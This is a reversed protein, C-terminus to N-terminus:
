LNIYILQPPPQQMTIKQEGSSGSAQSVIKSASKVSQSVWQFFQRFSEESNDMRFAHGIAIAKLKTENIGPGCGVTIVNVVKRNQRNLIEQRPTQWDDTPEGDTLIFVLPKWDGREKGKVSPKVDRDISTQLIELARGLPTSGDAELEPPYFKDIHVLGETIFEVTKGFTIVGVYVTDKTISDSKVEKIFTNVGKKVAKIPDGYMSGSCDLLLYVPLRRVGEEMAVNMGTIGKGKSVCILKNGCHQCIMHEDFDKGSCTPCEMVGLEM